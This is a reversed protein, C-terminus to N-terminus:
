PRGYYNTGYYFPAVDTLSIQGAPCLLAVEMAARARQPHVCLGVLAWGSCLFDAVSSVPAVTNGARSRRYLSTVVPSAFERWFIGIESDSKKDWYRQFVMKIVTLLTNVSINTTYRHSQEFPNGKTRTARRLMLKIAYPTSSTLTLHPAEYFHWGELLM